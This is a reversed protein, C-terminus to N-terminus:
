SGGSASRKPLLPQLQKWVTDLMQPQASIAPHLGDPQFQAPNAAFGEFL